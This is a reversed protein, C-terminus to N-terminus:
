RPDASDLFASGRELRARYSHWAHSRWLRVLSSLHWILHRWRLHSARQAQHVVVAEDVRSLQWGALQLRLCLDVDECYMHYGEDFGGVSAYVDRRLLLFAANVWNPQGGARAERRTAGPLYRRLLRLPTPLLREHDQQCGDEAVQVPYAVGIRATGSALRGLLADFPNGRLRIDPNVVAFTDCSGRRTDLAFAQNHNAGFGRPAPNETIELAFPWARQRLRAALEPEPLNLTLIVCKLREDNVAALDSLLSAVAQGHRHSVVSVCLSTVRHLLHRCEPLFM